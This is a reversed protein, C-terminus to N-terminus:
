LKIIDQEYFMIIVWPIDTRLFSALTLELAVHLNELISTSISSRSYVTALDGLCNGSWWKRTQLPILSLLQVMLSLPHSFSLRTSQGQQDCLPLWVPPHTTATAARRQRLLADPIDLHHGCDLLWLAPGAPGPQPWVCAMPPMKPSEATKESCPM